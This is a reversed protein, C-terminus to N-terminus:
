QGMLTSTRLFKLNSEKILDFEVLSGDKQDVLNLTDIDIDESDVDSSEGM